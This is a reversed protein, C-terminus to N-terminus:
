VGRARRVAQRRDDLNEVVGDADLVAEHRRDMGVGTVLRREVRQVLVKVASAGGRQRHDGGGGARGLRDAEDQGLEFALEVARRDAHGGGVNRHDVEFEDGLAGRSLILDVPRDLGGSIAIARELADEAIGFVRVDGRVEVMVRMRREEMEVLGLDDIAGEHPDEGPVVVLPAERVSHGVGRDRHRLEDSSQLAKSNASLAAPTPGAASLCLSLGFPSWKRLSAIMLLGKRVSSSASTEPLRTRRRTSRLTGVSFPRTVSVVRMSRTADVMSSIEVLPPLTMRSAWKPRGLPPGSSALESLGTAAATASITLRGTPKAASQMPWTAASAIALIFFPSM